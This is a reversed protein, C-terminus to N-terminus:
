NAATAQAVVEGAVVTALIRGDLIAAPDEDALRLPDIDMLTLDGWRGVELTGTHGDWHAARAAWVTYARVAEEASLAEEPYWGEAPRRNKDRRTVVAHLGYFIDHDSGSLDSSFVLHAGSRRLTRWAYAGRIREPGLREEAWIMDEVAHPPQMSATVGLGAFRSIDDPHVVQAHEIRHRENRTAPAGASVKEIFDLTERNGADGIAHIGVQFGAKMMDAVLGQDFGYEDGATGRHGPKDAYDDLLRAGRSGLAADYYAKVARVALKGDLGAQPGRELWERCLKEDRGSLMAYVRIPLEGAAALEELIEIEAASSGAEHVAVFGDRAMRRLGAMLFKKEQERTPPPVASTLLVTARNLLVGSPEGSEDRLIEGGDPAVSRRDIGAADLAARNGWVAFGHLSEFVVPHDPVARSLKDLTPYADAWAGEDWGRGLIWDGVPTSAARAVALAVADDETEVGILDIESELRGLGSVHTHADVWGPLVTAGGADLVRTKEGIFAEADRDLGVFVIKGDRVAVAEADAHWGSADHPADAAPEGEVSPESWSFTYVRGHLVVLDAAREPEEKLEESGCGGNLSLVTLALGALVVHRSIGFM